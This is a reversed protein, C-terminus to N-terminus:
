KLGKQLVTAIADVSKQLNANANLLDRTTSVSVTTIDKIDQARKDKEQLWGRIAWGLAGLSFLFLVYGFGQQAIGATLDM